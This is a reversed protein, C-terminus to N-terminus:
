TSKPIELLKRNKLHAIIVFSGGILSLLIELKELGYIKPTAFLMFGISALIIPSLNKHQKFYSQVLSSVALLISLVLIGLEFNKSEIFGLGTFPFLLLLIPTVLCHISCLVSTCVGLNDLHFKLFPIM